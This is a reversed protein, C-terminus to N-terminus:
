PIVTPLALTDTQLWIDGEMGPGSPEGLRVQNLRRRGRTWETLAARAATSGSAATTASGDAAFTHVISSFVYVNTRGSLAIYNDGLIQFRDHLQYTWNYPTELTVDVSPTSLQGVMIGALVLAEADTDIHSSRDESLGGWRRKYDAISAADEVRQPVRNDNAPIVDGVNRVSAISSHYKLSFFRNIVHLSRFIAPSPNFYTLTYEDDQDTDWMGRLDWGTTTTGLKRAAELVGSQEQWYAGISLPPVDLVKIVPAAEGSTLYAKDLLQQVAAYVPATDVVFGYIYGQDTNSLTDIQHDQTEGFLDRCRLTIIDTTDDLDFSDIRGDFVPRYFGIPSVGPLVCATYFTLRAGLRIAPGGGGFRNIGFPYVLPSLSKAASASALHYSFEGQTVPQGVNESISGSIFPDYTADGALQGITVGDIRTEYYTQFDPQQLIVEELGDFLRAM